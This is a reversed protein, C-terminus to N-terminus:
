VVDDDFTIDVIEYDYYTNPPISIICKLDDDDIYEVECRHNGIMPSKNGRISLFNEGILRVVGGGNDGYPEVFSEFMDTIYPKTDDIYVFKQRRTEAYGFGEFYIKLPVDYPVQTYPATTCVIFEGDFSDVPCDIGFITVTVESADVPPYVGEFSVPTGGALSGYRPM